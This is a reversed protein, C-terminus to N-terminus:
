RTLRGIRALGPRAFALLLLTLLVLLSWRIAVYGFLEAETADTFAMKPIGAFDEVTFNGGRRIKEAFYARFTSHFTDVQAEFRAHRASDSGAIRELSGRVLMAPSAFELWALIARREDRQERLHELVPASKAALRQQLDVVRKGYDAAKDSDDHRGTADNFEQEIEQAAERAESIVEVGSPAPYVTDVVVGTLGPIVVVIVLWAGVLRLANGAATGGRSNIAVAAAFWLATWGILVLAYLLVHFWANPAGLDAGAVILGIFGSALTVALLIAARAIAKGLVLSQQSIPQSLLMALTGREREGALLEYSLAIVVLPFLVIFLFSPDFSGTALRTPGTMPTETEREATLHVSTSVRVAQPLLTRTGSAIPSLPAPPLIAPVAAGTQGMWVTNGPAMAGLISDNKGDALQQRHTEAQTAAASQLTELSENLSAAQRGGAWASLILLVTFLTVVLSVSRDRRVIKWELSAITRWTSPQKM